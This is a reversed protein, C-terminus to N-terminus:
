IVRRSPVETPAGLAGVGGDSVGTVPADDAPVVGGDEGTCVADSFVAPSLVVGADGKVGGDEVTCVADSFVAPSLVVGADGKVGEDEGACATDSFVAPSLVVGADAALGADESGVM